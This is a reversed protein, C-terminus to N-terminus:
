DRFRLIVFGAAPRHNTERGVYKASIYGIKLCSLNQKLNQFVVLVCQRPTLILVGGHILHTVM